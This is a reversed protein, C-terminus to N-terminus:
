VLIADDFAKHMLGNDVVKYIDRLIFGDADFRGKLFLFIFYDLLLDLSALEIIFVYNALSPKTLHPLNLMSFTPVHESHFLHKFRHLYFM